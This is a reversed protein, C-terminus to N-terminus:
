HILMVTKNNSDTKASTSLLNNNKLNWKLNVNNENFFNM